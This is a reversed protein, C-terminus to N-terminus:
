ADANTHQEAGAASLRLRATYRVFDLFRMMLERLDRAQQERFERMEDSTSIQKAHDRLLQYYVNKVINQQIEQCANMLDEAKVNMDDFLGFTLADKKQTKWDGYLDALFSTLKTDGTLEDVPFPDAGRQTSATQEHMRDSSTSKEIAQRALFEDVKEHNLWSDKMQGLWDQSGEQLRVSKQQHSYKPNAFEERFAYLVVDDSKRLLHLQLTASPSMSDDSEEEAAQEELSSLRETTNFQEYLAVAARTAFRSDPDGDIYDHRGLQIIAILLNLTSKLHEIEGIYLNIKSKKFAWKAGHHWKFGDISRSGPIMDRITEFLTRSDEGLKDALTLAKTSYLAGDRELRDHLLDLVDKYNSINRAIYSTDARASSVTDGFEYLTQTLELAFSTIGVISAIVGVVEM